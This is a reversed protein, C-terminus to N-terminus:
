ILSENNLAIIINEKGIENRLFNAIETPTARSFEKDNVAILFYSKANVMGLEESIILSTEQKYKEGKDQIFSLQERTLISKPEYVIYDKKKFPLYNKSYGDLKSKLEEVELNTYCMIDISM